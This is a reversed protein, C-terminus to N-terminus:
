INALRTSGGLVCCTRWLHRPYLNQTPTLIPFEGREMCDIQLATGFLSVTFGARSTRHEGETIVRTVLNVYDIEFNRM